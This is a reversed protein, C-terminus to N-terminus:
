VQREGGHAQETPLAMECDTLWAPVYVIAYNCFLKRYTRPQVNVDMPLFFVPDLAKTWSWLLVGCPYGWLPTWSFPCRALQFSNESGSSSTRGDHDQGECLFSASVMLTCTLWLPHSSHTVCEMSIGTTHRSGSAVLLSAVDLQQKDRTAVGFWFSFVSLIRRRVM